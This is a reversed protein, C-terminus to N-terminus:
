VTLVFFLTSFWGDFYQSGFELYSKIKMLNFILNFHYITIVKEKRVRGGAEPIGQKEERLGVNTTKGQIGKTQVLSCSQIWM